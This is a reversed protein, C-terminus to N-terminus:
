DLLWSFGRRKPFVRRRRILVLAGGFWGAGAHDALAPDAKAAESQAWAPAGGHITTAMSSTSRASQHAPRSFPRSRRPTGDLSKPEHLPLGIAQKAAHTPLDLKVGFYGRDGGGRDWGGVIVAGCTVSGKVVGAEALQNRLNRATERDLYGVTQDQIEVRVAKADHPDNTELVLQRGPVRGPESRAARRALKAPM